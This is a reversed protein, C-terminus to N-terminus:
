QPLSYMTRVYHERFSVRKGGMGKKENKRRDESGKEKEERESM